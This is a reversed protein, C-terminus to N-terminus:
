KTRKRTVEVGAWRDHSGINGTEPKISSGIAIMGVFAILWGIGPVLGAIRWWYRKASQELSPKAGTKVDRVEYGFLHKVPTAGTYSEFGIFYAIGVLSLLLGSLADNSSLVVGAISGLATAAMSDLVMMGLRLKADPRDQTPVSPSSYPQSVPLGATPGTPQSFSIGSVGPSFGTPTQPLAPKPPEPQPIPQQTPQQGLLQADPFSGFNALHELEQWSVARGTALAADYGNRRGEDSLVAYSIQLNRRQSDSVPVGNNELRADRGLILLGLEACSLDRDLGLSQYLSFNPTTM